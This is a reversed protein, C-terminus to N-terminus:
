THLPKKSLNYVSQIMLGTFSFLLVSSFLVAQPKQLMWQNSGDFNELIFQHIWEGLLVGPVNFLVQLDQNYLAAALGSLIGFLFFSAIIIVKKSIGLKYLLLAILSISIFYIIGIWVFIVVDKFIDM